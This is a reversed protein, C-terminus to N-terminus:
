KLSFNIPLMFQVSVPIGAKLAPKEFKPLLKVVRLAEADLDPDVSQVIKVDSVSCDKQVVFKVTVRGTIGREKASEPYKTNDAVFKILGNQGDKFVPMEDVEVFVSDTISVTKSEQPIVKETSELASEKKNGCDPFAILVIALVPLIMLLKHNVRTKDKKETKM